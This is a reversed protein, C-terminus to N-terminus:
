RFLFSDATCFSTTFKRNAISSALQLAEHEIDTSLCPVTRSGSSSHATLQNTTYNYTVRVAPLLIQQTMTTHLTSRFVM